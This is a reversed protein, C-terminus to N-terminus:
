TLLGEALRRNSSSGDRSVRNAMALRAIDDKGEVNIMKRLRHRRACTPLDEGDQDEGALEQLTEEALAANPVSEVEEVSTESPQNADANVQDLARVLQDIGPANFAEIALLLSTQQEQKDNNQSAQQWKLAAACILDAAMNWAPTGETTTSATVEEDCVVEGRGHRCVLNQLDLFLADESVDVGQKKLLGALNSSAESLAGLIKTLQFASSSRGM